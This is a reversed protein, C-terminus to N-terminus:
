LSPYYQGGTAQYVKTNYNNENMTRFAEKMKAGDYGEVNACSSFFSTLGTILLFCTIKM